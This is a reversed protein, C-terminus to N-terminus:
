SLADPRLEGSLETIRDVPLNLKTSANKVSEANPAEYVCYTKKKDASLFSFMWEAGVSKGVDRITSAMENSVALEEAFSREVVFRPM